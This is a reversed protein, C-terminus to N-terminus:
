ALTKKNKLDTGLRYNTPGNFIRLAYFARLIKGSSLSKTKVKIYYNNVAYKRNSCYVRCLRRKHFHVYAAICEM